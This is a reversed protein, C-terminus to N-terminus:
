TLEFNVCSHLKSYLYETLTYKDYQEPDVFTVLIDIDNNSLMDDQLM